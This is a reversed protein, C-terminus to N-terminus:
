SICIGAVNDLAEFTQTNLRILMYLVYSVSYVNILANKNTDAKDFVYVFATTTSKKTM